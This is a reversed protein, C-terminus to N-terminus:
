DLVSLTVRVIDELTARDRKAQGSVRMGLYSSFLYHALIRPKQKKSIDGDSQGQKVLAYFLEDMGEFDSGVIKALEKNQNTMETATNVMFCGKGPADHLIAERYVRFIVEIKKRASSQKDLEDTLGKKQLSQYHRLAAVYLKHKDEFTAYLSSRSLGTVEVLDNISAGHYGKKWFLEMAKNLVTDTDFLKEKPM